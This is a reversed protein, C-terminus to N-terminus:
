RDGVLRIILKAEESTLVPPPPVYHSRRARQRQGQTSWDFAEEVSESDHGSLDDVTMSDHGSPVKAMGSLVQAQSHGQEEVSESGEQL